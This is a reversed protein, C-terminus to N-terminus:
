KRPVSNPVKSYPSWNTGQHKRRQEEDLSSTKAQQYLSEWSLAMKPDDSQAGYDRQYGAAVVMCAFLLLDPYNLSVYTSPNAASIPSPRFIGTTELTYAQDATPAVIVTTDNLVALYEPPANAGIEQPWTQDIFDKSVVLLPNRTGQSPTDGAPTIYNASELIFIGVPLTCQRSTISLVSTATQQRNNIFDLERAIRQEAAETIRPLFNNFDGSSSPDQSASNTIPYVLLTGLATTLDSWQMSM